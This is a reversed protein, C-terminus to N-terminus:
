LGPVSYKDRLERGYDKPVAGVTVADRRSNQSNKPAVVSNPGLTVVQLCVVRVAGDVRCM